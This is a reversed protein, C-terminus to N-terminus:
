HDPRDVAMSLTDRRQHPCSVEDFIGSRVIRGTAGTMDAVDEQSRPPLCRALASEVLQGYPEVHCIDIGREFLILDEVRDNLPALTSLQSM